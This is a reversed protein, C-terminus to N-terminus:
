PCVDQIRRYQQNWLQDTRLVQYESPLPIYNNPLYEDYQFRLSIGSSDTVDYLNRQSNSVEKVRTSAPDFVEVTVSHTTPPSSILLIICM